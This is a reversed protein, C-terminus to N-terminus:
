PEKIKREKRKREKRGEKERNGSFFDRREGKNRGAGQCKYVVPPSPCRVGAM